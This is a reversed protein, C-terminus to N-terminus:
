NIVKGRIRRPTKAQPPAAAYPARSEAVAAVARVKGKRLYQRFAADTQNRSMVRGEECYYRLVDPCIDYGNPFVITGNSVTVRTFERPDRLAEVLSGASTSFLGALDVEGTYGDAFAVRLRCGWGDGPVRGKPSVM